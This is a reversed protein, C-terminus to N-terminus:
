YTPEAVALMHDAGSQQRRSLWLVVGLEMAKQHFNNWHFCGSGSAHVKKQILINRPRSSINICSVALALVWILGLRPQNLMCSFHHFCSTIEAERMMIVCFQAICVLVDDAENGSSDLGRQESVFAPIYKHKHLPLVSHKNLYSLEQHKQQNTSPSLPLHTLNWRTKSLAVWCELVSQNCVTTHPPKNSSM